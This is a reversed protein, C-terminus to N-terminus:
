PIAERREAGSTAPRGAATEARPTLGPPQPRMIPRCVPATPTSSASRTSRTPAATIQRRGSGASPRPTIRRAGKGERYLYGLNYEAGAHGQEAARRYWSLAGAANKETGTGNELAHGLNYQAYAWGHESAKRWWRVAEAQDEATGKGFAYMQGTLFEAPAFGQEAAKRYWSFAEADDQAVGKGEM